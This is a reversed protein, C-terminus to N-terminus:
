AATPAEEPAVDPATEQAEQPESPEQPAAKAKKAEALQALQKQRVAAHAALTEELKKGHEEKIAQAKANIPNMSEYFASRVAAIEAERKAEAISIAQKMLREAERKKVAFRDKAAQRDAKSAEDVKVVETTLAKLAADCARISEATSERVAAEFEIDIEERSTPPARRASASSNRVKESSSVQSDGFATEDEFEVIQGSKDKKIM